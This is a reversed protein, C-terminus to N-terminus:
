QNSFHTYPLALWKVRTVCLDRVLNMGFDEADEDLREEGENAM